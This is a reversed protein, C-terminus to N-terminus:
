NGTGYNGLTIFNWTDPIHFCLVRIPVHCVISYDILIVIIITGFLRSIIRYVEGWRASIGLIIDLDSTEAKLM